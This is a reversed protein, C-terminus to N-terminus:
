GKEFLRRGEPQLRRRLWGQAHGSAHFGDEHDHCLLYDTERNTLYIEHYCSETLVPVVQEPHGLVFVTPENWPNFFLLVETGRHRLYEDIWQRPDAETVSVDRTLRSWLFGDGLGSTYLSSITRRVEASQEPSLESIKAGAAQGARLLDEKDQSIMM